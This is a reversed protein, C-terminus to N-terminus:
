NHKELIHINLEDETNFPTQCLDCQIINSTEKEITPKYKSPALYRSPIIPLIPNYSVPYYSPAYYPYDKVYHRYSDPEISHEYKRKIEDEDIKLWLVNGDRSDVKSIPIYYYHVSVFGRKIM